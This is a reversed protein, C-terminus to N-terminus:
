RAGGPTPATGPRRRRCGGRHGPRTGPEHGRDSRAPVTRTREDRRCRAPRVGSLADLEDSDSPLSGRRSSSSSSRIAPVATASSWWQRSARWRGRGWSRARPHRHIQNPLLDRSARLRHRCRQDGCSRAPAVTGAAATAGRARWQGPQRVGRVAAVRHRDGRNRLDSSSRGHGRRDRVGRTSRADRGVHSPPQRDRVGGCNRRDGRAGLDARVRRARRRTAVRQPARSCGHRAVTRGGNGRPLWRRGM